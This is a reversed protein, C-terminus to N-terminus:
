EIAFVKNMFEVFMIKVEQQRETLSTAHMFYIEDGVRNM